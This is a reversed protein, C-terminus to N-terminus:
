RRPTFINPSWGSGFEAVVEADSRTVRFVEHAVLDRWVYELAMPALRVEAGRFVFPADEARWPACLGDAAIGNSYQLTQHFASEFDSEGAARLALVFDRVGGWIQEYKQSVFARDRIM